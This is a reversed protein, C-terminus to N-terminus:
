TNFVQFKVPILNLEFITLPDFLPFLFSLSLFELKYLYLIEYTRLRLEQHQEYNWFQNSYLTMRVHSWVLDRKMEFDQILRLGGLLIFIWKGKYFFFCPWSPWYPAVHPDDFSHTVQGVSRGVSWGVLWRVCGTISTSKRM